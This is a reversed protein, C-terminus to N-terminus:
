ANQKEKAPSMDIVLMIGVSLLTVVALEMDM